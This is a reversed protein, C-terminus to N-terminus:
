WSNEFKLWKVDPPLKTIDVLYGRTQHDGEGLPAVAEHYERGLYSWQELPVTVGNEDPSEGNFFNMVEEPAAVEAAVCADYVAKM